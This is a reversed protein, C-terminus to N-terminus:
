IGRMSICFFLFLHFQSYCGFDIALNVSFDKSSHLVELQFCYGTPCTHHHSRSSNSCLWCTQAVRQRSSAIVCACFRFDSVFNIETCIYFTIFNLMQLAVFFSDYPCFFCSWFHSLTHAAFVRVAHACVYSFLCLKTFISSGHTRSHKDNENVPWLENANLLRVYSRFQIKSLSTLM